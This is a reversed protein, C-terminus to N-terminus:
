ELAQRIHNLYIDAREAAFYDIFYAMLGLTMLALSIAKWNPTGLLFFMIAGGVVFIFAAPYSYKFIQDFGEVREKEALVFQHKDQQWAEKYYPIGNRNSIVGSIGFVLPISGVILLPLVLSRAYPTDGFRMFLIACVIILAGFGAMISAELIEGKVWNITHNILEM